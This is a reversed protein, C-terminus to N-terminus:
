INQPFFVVSTTMKVVDCSPYMSDTTCRATSTLIPEQSFSHKDPKEMAFNSKIGGWEISYKKSTVIHLGYKLFPSNYRM